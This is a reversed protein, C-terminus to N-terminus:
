RDVTDLIRTSLGSLWVSNKEKKMAGFPFAKDTSVDDKRPKTAKAIKREEATKKAEIKTRKVEDEIRQQSEMELRARSKKTVVAQSKRTTASSTPSLQSVQVNQSLSYFCPPKQSLAKQSPAKHHAEHEEVDILPMSSLSSSASADPASSIHSKVPGVTSQTGLFEVESDKDNALFDDANRVSEFNETHDPEFM